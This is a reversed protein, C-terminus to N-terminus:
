PEPVIHLDEIGLVPVGNVVWAEDFNAGGDVLLNTILAPLQGQLGWMLFSLEDNNIGGHLEADIRGISGLSPIIYAQLTDDGDDGDVMLNADGNVQGRYELNCDDANPGLTAAVDLVGPVNVDGVFLGDFADLGAGTDAAIAVSGDIFGSRCSVDLYDTGAGTLLTAAIDQGLSVDGGINYRVANPGGGADLLAAVNGVGAVAGMAGAPSGITFNFRDTSAGGQIFFSSAGVPGTAGNALSVPADLIVTASNPGEGLNAVTDTFVDYFYMTAVDNGIGGDLWLNVGGRAGIPPGPPPEGDAFLQFLNRGNGLDVNVPAVDGVPLGDLDVYVGDNGEGVDVQVNPFVHYFALDVANSTDGGTVQVDLSGPAIGPLDAPNAQADLQFSNKGDGLDAVVFSDDPVGDYHLSVNDKGDGGNFVVAAPVDQFSMAATNSGLGAVDVFLGANPPVLPVPSSAMLQFKDKSDDGLDTIVTSPASGVLGDFTVTVSDKGLGMDLMTNAFVDFFSMSCSDKGGLSDFTINLGDSLPDGPIPSDAWLRFTDKGESMSVDLLSPMGVPVNQYRMTVVDKGKVAGTDIVTSTFLGDFNLSATDKSTGGAFNLNVMAPFEGPLAPAAGDSDLQLVNKSDGMDVIVNAAQAVSDLVAPLHQTVFVTNKSDGTLITLNAPDFVGPAVGAADLLYDVHNKGPGTDILIDTVGAFPTPAANAPDTPVAVVATGDGNDTVQVWDKGADGIVSLLGGAFTINVNLLLRPELAELRLPRTGPRTKRARRSSSPHWM